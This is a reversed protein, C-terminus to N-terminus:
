GSGSPRPVTPACWLIYTRGVAVACPTTKEKILGRGRSPRGGLPSTHTKERPRLRFAARRRLLASPAAGAATARGVSVGPRQPAASASTTWSASVSPKPGLHQPNSDRRAYLWPPRDLM